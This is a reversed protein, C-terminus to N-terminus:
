SESTQQQLTTEGNQLNCIRTVCCNSVNQLKVRQEIIGYEIFFSYAQKIAQKSHMALIYLKRRNRKSFCLMQVINRLIHSINRM